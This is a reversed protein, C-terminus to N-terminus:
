LVVLYRHGDIQWPSPRPNSDRRGSWRFGRSLLPNRSERLRRREVPQGDHGHDQGDLRITSKDFVQTTSPDIRCRPTDDSCIRHRIPEEGACGTRRGAQSGLQDGEGFQSITQLSLDLPTLARLCDHLARCEIREERGTRREDLSELLRARFRRRRTVRSPRRTGQRALDSEGWHRRGSGSFACTAQLIGSTLSDQRRSHEEQGNATRDTPPTAHASASRPQAPRAEDDTRRQRAYPQPTTPDSQHTAPSSADTPTPTSRGNRELILPQVLQSRTTPRLRPSATPPRPSM